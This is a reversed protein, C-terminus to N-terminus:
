TKIIYNTVVSPQVNQQAGATQDHAGVSGGFTHTHGASVGYTSGVTGGDSSNAGSRLGWYQSGGNIVVQAAGSNWGGASRPNFNHSHDASQGGTNGSNSATFTHTHSQLYVDGFWQGRTRVVTTGGSIVGSGSAGNQAQTGAGVPVRGAMNPVNFTTSGDGAGYTTAIIAFLTAYTVRNVAAGDCLLWGAPSTAGAFAQMSGSPSGPAMWVTGNWFYVQQTDSEFIMQGVVPSPPRSTSKCTIANATISKHTDLANNFLVSRALEGSGSLASRSEETSPSSEV